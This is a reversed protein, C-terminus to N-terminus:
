LGTDDMERPRQRARPGWLDADVADGGTGDGKFFGFRWRKLVELGAGGGTAEAGAVLDGVSNEVEERGGFEYGALQGNNVAAQRQSLPPLTLSANFFEWPATTTDPYVRAVTATLRTASNLNPLPIQGAGNTRGLAKGNLNVQVGDIPQGRFNLQVLQPYLLVFEIPLNLVVPQIPEPPGVTLMTKAYDSTVVRGVQASQKYKARYEEVMSLGNGALLQAFEKAPYSKVVSKTAASVWYTGAFPLRVTPPTWVGSSRLSKWRLHIHGSGALPMQVVGPTPIEHTSPILFLSAFLVLV